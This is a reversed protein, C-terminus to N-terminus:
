HCMPLSLGLGPTVVQGLLSTGQLWSSRWACPCTAGGAGGGGAFNAPRRSELLFCSVKWSVTFVVRTGLPDWEPGRSTEMFKRPDLLSGVHLSSCAGSVTAAWFAAKEAVCREWCLPVPRGRTHLHLARPCSRRGFLPQYCGTEELEACDRCVQTGDHGWLWRVSESCCGWGRIQLSSPRPGGRVGLLMCLASGLLYSTEEEVRVGLVVHM